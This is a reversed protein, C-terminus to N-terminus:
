GALIEAGFPDFVKDYFVLSVVKAPFDEGMLYGHFYLSTRHPPYPQAEVRLASLYFHNCMTSFSEAISLFSPESILHFTQPYPLEKCKGIQKSFTSLEWSIDPNFCGNHTWIESSSHFVSSSAGHGM